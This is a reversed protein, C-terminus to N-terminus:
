LHIKMVSKNTYSNPHILGSLPPGSRGYGGIVLDGYNRNVHSTGAWPSRMERKMKFLCKERVREATEPGPTGVRLPEERKSSAEKGPM